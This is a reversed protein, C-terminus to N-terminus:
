EVDKLDVQVAKMTGNSTLLYGKNGIFLYTGAVWNATTELQILKLPETPSPIISKPLAFVITDNLISYNINLEDLSKLIKFGRINTFDNKAFGFGGDELELSGRLLLEESNALQKTTNERLIPKNGAVNLDIPTAPTSPAENSKLESRPSSEQTNGQSLQEVDDNQRLVLLISGSLLLIGTVVAAIRLTRYPTRATSTHYSHEAEISSATARYGAELGKMKQRLETHSKHIVAAEVLKIFELETAVSEDQQALSELEELEAKKLPQYKLKDLLLRSRTNM